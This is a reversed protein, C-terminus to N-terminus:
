FVAHLVLSAITFYVLMSFTDTITAIFPGSAVAPDLGLRQIIVPVLSGAAKALMLNITLALGVILGVWPSGNWLMAAGGLVLGCILGTVLGIRAERWVARILQGREVEGTALGRVMVTLAQTAANGSGGAMTTIFVALASVQNILPTFTEIVKGSLLSLFLLGLLWPLRARVSPWIAGELDTEYEAESVGGARYIDETAEEELVDIVDDVTVIGRLIGQDDVVPVALLNYKQVVRAVEEQDENVHVSVPNTRMIARVETEPPAVILERLSLVGVLREQADIVYVYYATEASPAERRLQEIAEAATRHAQVAVLETTMIGGASDERFGLLERVDTAEEQAMLDLLAGAKEPDLEAFLDAADDASMEDLIAKAQAPPLATVLEAQEEPELESIAEAATPGALLQVVATRDEEELEQLVEALDAPHLESLLERLEDLRHQQLLVITQDLTGILEQNM